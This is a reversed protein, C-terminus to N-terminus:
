YSANVRGPGGRLALWAAVATIALFGVEFPLQGPLGFLYNSAVDFEPDFFATAPYVIALGQSLWYLSAFGAAALVSTRRDVSDRWSLWVTMVGLLISMMLTQGTHFRAHPPWRPNYIHTESVDALHAGVPMGIATVLFLIRSSRPLRM